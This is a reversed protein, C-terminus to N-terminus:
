SAEVVAFAPVDLIDEGLIMQAVRVGSYICGMSGTGPQTWHGSLFLGPLPTKNSLRRSGTQQPTNAWGYLAGRQNLSYREMALPTAGEVFTLGARLGPLITEMEDLLMETWREKEDNWPRGIDYPAVATCVVLHEGEPALSPDTLTPLSIAYWAPDGENGRRFVEDQDWDKFVFTVHGLGSASVDHTTAAYVLFASISPEMRTLRRVYADPLHEFGVLKEFTLRADANSVVVPARVAQGGALEIGAARGDEVLISTVENKLVVEGGQREIAEVLADVLTQYTGLPYYQGTEVRSYAMGAWMVFSVQSPPVALNPWTGALVAKLRPDAIHEDMVDSVSAARYKILMPFAREAEAFDDLSSPRPKELERTVTEMLDLIAELGAQEDPFHELHAAVFEARGKPADLRFDPLIVSYVPDHYPVFRCRDGVELFELLDILSPKMKGMSTGHIAPDFHYEGRRFSHAYGGPGDLREAVLVRKGGRALFAAASLGGLGSGVVAVDYADRRPETHLEATM